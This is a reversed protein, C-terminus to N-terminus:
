AREAEGLAASAKGLEGRVLEGVRKVHRAALLGSLEPDGALIAEIIAAHEQWSELMRDAQASAFLWLTKERLTRIYDALYRNRGGEAVTAHFRDNMARLSAGDGSAAANNGDELVRQLATRLEDDCRQAANQANIRELEARLEIVEAAEQDSVFRVRAGRRPNGEVLGEVELMRLAERIPSRSVQFYQALMPETLREGPRFRGRLIAERLSKTVASQLSQHTIGLDSPAQIPESGAMKM